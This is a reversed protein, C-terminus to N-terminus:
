VLFERLSSTMRFKGQGSIVSDIPVYGGLHNTALWQRFSWEIESRAVFESMCGESPHVKRHGTLKDYVIFAEGLGTGPGLVAVNGHVAPALDASKESPIHLAHINGSQVSPLSRAVAVFDNILSVKHCGPILGCVTAENFRWAVPLATSSCYAEGDFVPGCVAFVAVPIDREGNCEEDLFRRILDLACGASGSPYVARRLVDGSDSEEFSFRRLEFRANTAGLNPLIGLMPPYRSRLPIRRDM